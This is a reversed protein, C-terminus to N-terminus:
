YHIMARLPFANKILDVRPRQAGCFRVTIVDFRCDVDKLGNEKLYCIATRAIRGQKKATVAYEASGELGETRSKVEVFVLTDNQRAIIDIEGFPSSYNRKIIKFGLSKLYKAALKEGRDGLNEDGRKGQLSKKVRSALFSLKV